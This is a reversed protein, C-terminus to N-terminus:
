KSLPRGFIRCDDRFHIANRFREQLPKRAKFNRPRKRLFKRRTTFTRAVSKTIKKAVLETIPDNRDVMGLSRLAIEYVANLMRAEKPDVPSGNVLRNLPM